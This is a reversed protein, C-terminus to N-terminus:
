VVVTGVVGDVHQAAGRGAASDRPPGPPLNPATSPGSSGGPRYPSRLLARGVNGHTPRPRLPRVANDSLTEPKDFTLFRLPLLTLARASVDAHTVGRRLNADLIAVVDRM